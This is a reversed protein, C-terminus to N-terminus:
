NYTSTNQELRLLRIKIKSPMMRTYMEFLSVAFYYMVYVIFSSSHIKCKNM